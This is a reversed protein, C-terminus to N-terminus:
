AWFDYTHSDPPIIDRVDEVTVHYRRELAQRLKGLAHREIQKVRAASIGM